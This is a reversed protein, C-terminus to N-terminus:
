PKAAANDRLVKEARKFEEITAEDLHMYPCNTDHCGGPEAFKYCYGPTRKTASSKAKPKAKASQKGGAPSSARSGARSPPQVMKAAEAASLKKHLFWCEDATKPCGGPQNFYYCVKKEGKAKGKGAGKGSPNPAPAATTKAAAKGKQEKKKKKKGTGPTEVNNLAVSPASTKSDRNSLMSHLDNARNTRYRERDMYNEMSRILYDTNKNPDDEDMRYFHAVDEKPVTSKEVKQLLIETVEDQPLTTNMQDLMLRWMMLFKHIQKDGMWDLKALDTVSYLVGMKPNRKFFTFILWAIQRGKLMKGQMSAAHEKQATSTTVENNVERLMVSLSISLKLDLSVFRDEGSDELSDFTSTEKSAEAWWSIERQDVRGGAAALNKGVQLKWAALSPLTPFKPVKVTDHEKFRRTETTTRVANDGRLPNINIRVQNRNSEGTPDDGDGPPDGALYDSDSSHESDDSEDGGDDPDGGGHSVSRRTTSRGRSPYNGNPSASNRNDSRDVRDSLISITKSMEDLANLIAGTTGPSMSRATSAVSVERKPNDPSKGHTSRAEAKIESRSQLRLIETQLVSVQQSHKLVKEESDRAMADVRKSFADHQKAIEAEARTLDGKLKSVVSDADLHELSSSDAKRSLEKNSVELQSVLDTLRRVEHNSALLETEKRKLNYGFRMNEQSLRENNKETISVVDNAERIEKQYKADAADRSDTIRKVEGQILELQRVKSSLESQLEGITRVSEHLDVSLQVKGTDDEMCAANVKEELDAKVNLHMENNYQLTSELNEIRTQAQLLDNQCSRLEHLTLGLSEELRINQDSILTIDVTRNDKYEREREELHRELLNVQGILHTVQKGSLVLRKELEDVLAENNACERCQTKVRHRKVVDQQEETEGSDVMNEHNVGRHQSSDRKGRGSKPATARLANSSSAGEYQGIVRLRDDLMPLLDPKPEAGNEAILRDLIEDPGLEASKGPTSGRASERGSGRSSRPSRSKGEYQKDSVPSKSFIKAIVSTFLPKSSSSRGSRDKKEQRGRETGSSAAPAALPRRDLLENIPSLTPASVEDNGGSSSSKRGFTVASESSSQATSPAAIADEFEMNRLIQDANAGVSM